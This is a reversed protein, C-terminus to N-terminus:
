VYYKLLLMYINCLICTITIIYLLVYYFTLYGKNLRQKIRIYKSLKPFKDELKLRDILYDGILVTSLNFITVLVMFFGFINFLAVMQELSLTNLISNYKEIMDSLFSSVDSKNISSNIKELLENVNSDKKVILNNLEESYYKQKNNLTELNEGIYFNKTNLQLDINNLVSKVKYIENDLEEIRTSAAELTLKFDSSVSQEIHNYDM